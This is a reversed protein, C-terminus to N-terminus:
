AKFKLRRREVVRNICFQRENKDAPDPRHHITKRMLRRAAEVEGYRQLITNWPVWEETESRSRSSIHSML